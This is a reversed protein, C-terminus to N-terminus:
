TALKENLREAQKPNLMQLYALMGKLKSRTAGETV